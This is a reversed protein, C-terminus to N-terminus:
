HPATPNGGADVVKFCSVYEAINIQGLSLYRMANQCYMRSTKMIRMKTERLPKKTASSNAM